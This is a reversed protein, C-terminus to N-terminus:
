LWSSESLKLGQDIPLGAELLTALQRAFEGYDRPHYQRSSFIQSFRRQNQSPSAPVAEFPTLGRTNLRNLVDSASNAEMEGTELLGQPTFAKFRYLAM